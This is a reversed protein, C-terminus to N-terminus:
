RNHLDQAEQTKVIQFSRPKLPQEMTIPHQDRTLGPNSASPTNERNQGPKAKRALEKLEPGQTPTELLHQYLKRIGAQEEKHEQQVQGDLLTFCTFCEVIM